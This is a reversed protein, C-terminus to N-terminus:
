KALNIFPLTADPIMQTPLKGDWKEVAKLNVYERGGQQTIAQAQIQIAKAEAEAQALRQEAELKVRELDNRAKLAQQQSVQKSEVAKEYEDSFSFDTISFEVVNFYVSLRKLLEEKISEKVKPRAEILEQATFNAVGAKVSEQIAPDILRAQYDKGVEQWLKNVSQPKINYNLALTANVTQIDKSYALTKTEIKLTKVDLKIVQQYIPIRFHLGEEMIEGSVAGWNLVVGREGAPIIVFPNLASFIIIAIIIGGAWLTLKKM